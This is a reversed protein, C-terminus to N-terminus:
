TPRGQVDLAEGFPVVALASAVIAMGKRFPHRTLRACPGDFGSRWFTIPSTRSIMSFM